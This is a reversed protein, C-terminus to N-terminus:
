GMRAACFTVFGAAHGGRTCCARWEQLVGSVSAARGGGTCCARWGAARGGGMWCARARVWAARGAAASGELEGAAYSAYASHAGCAGRIGHEREAASGNCGCRRRWQRRWRRRRAGPTHHYAITGASGVGAGMCTHRAQSRVHGPFVFMKHFSLHRRIASPTVHSSRTVVSHAGRWESVDSSSKRIVDM